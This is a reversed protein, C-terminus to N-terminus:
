SAPVVAISAYGSVLVLWILLEIDWGRSKETLQLAGHFSLAGVAELEV